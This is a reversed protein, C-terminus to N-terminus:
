DRGCRSCQSQGNTESVPVMRVTRKLRSCRIRNHYRTGQGTIYIIDAPIMGKACSECPVYRAGHQNRLHGAETGAAQSISLDLYSCRPNDHYVSGSVTVYVMEEEHELTERDDMGTWSHVRGRNTIVMPPLPVISVPLRYTYNEPIEIVSIREGAAYAYVGMEMAKECLRSIKETQVRMVDMFGILTLTGMLFLPLIFALEVTLVGSRLTGFFAKQWPDARFRTNFNMGAAWVGRKAHFKGGMRSVCAENAAFIGCVAVCLQCFANKLCASTNPSQLVFMKRLSYKRLFKLKPIKLLEKKQDKAFPM